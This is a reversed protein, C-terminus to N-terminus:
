NKYLVGKENMESQEMVIDTFSLNLVKLFHDYIACETKSMIWDSEALIYM